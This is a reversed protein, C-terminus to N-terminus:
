KRRNGRNSRIRKATRNRQNYEFDLRRRSGIQDRILKIVVPGTKATRLAKKTYVPCNRLSKKKNKPILKELAYELGWRFGYASTGITLIRVWKRNGNLLPEVAQMNLVRIANSYINTVKNFRSIDKRISRMEHQEATAMLCKQPNSVAAIMKELSQRSFHLIDADLVIMTTANLTRAKMVGSVFAGRKGKIRKHTVVKAGLKKATSATKDRSADNVVVIEDILGKAKHGNLIQMTRSLNKEENQAIIVAVVKEM